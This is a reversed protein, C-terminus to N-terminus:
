RVRAFFFLQPPSPVNSASGAQSAVVGHEVRKLDASRVKLPGPAAGGAPSLVGVSSRNGQSDVATLILVHVELPIRGLGPPIASLM